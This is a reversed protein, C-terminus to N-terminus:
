DFMSVHIGLLIAITVMLTLHIGRLIDRPVGHIKRFLFGTLAILGLVFLTIYAIICTTNGIEGYGGNLVSILHIVLVIILALSTYHHGKYMYKMEFHSRQFAERVSKIRYLFIVFGAMVSFGFLIFGIAGMAAALDGVETGGGDDAKVQFIFFLLINFILGFISLFKFKM